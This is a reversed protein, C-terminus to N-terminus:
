QRSKSIQLVVGIWASDEVVQPKPHSPHQRLELGGKEKIRADAASKIYDVRGSTRKVASVTNIKKLASYYAVLGYQFSNEGKLVRCINDVDGKIGNKGSFGRPQNKVEIITVPTDGDWVVIDFRGGEFKRRTDETFKGSGPGGAEKISEKADQELTVYHGTNTAIEKAIYTTIMYEPGTCLWLGSWNEYDKHAKTIGRLTKKIINTRAPM